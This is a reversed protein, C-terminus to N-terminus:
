AQLLASSLRAGATQPTPNGPTVPPPPTSGPGPPPSVPTAPSAPAAPPVFKRREYGRAEMDARKSQIVQQVAPKVFSLMRDAVEENTFTWYQNPFKHFGANWEDRTCFWKGDRLLDKQSAAEKFDDNVKRIVQDLRQHQPSDIPEALPKGTKPNYTGLRILESYDSSAVSVVSRVADLEDAFNQKASDAGYKKAHEFVEEPIAESNLRSVASESRAKIKPEEDRKFIEHELKAHEEKLPKGVRDAIRAESVTRQDAETLKPRNKDLWKDYTAKADPDEDIEPHKDLYAQHEKIFKAVQGKLGKKAPLYKEVEEADSLMQKEEDVLEAEWDSEAKPSTPPTVTPAPEAAPKPPEPRKSIPPTKKAKIPKDDAPPTAAAKPDPTADAKKDPEKPPEKNEVNKGPESASEEALLQFIRNGRGKAAADDPKKAAEPPPTQAPTPAPATPSAPPTSAVPNAPAASVPAAPTPM